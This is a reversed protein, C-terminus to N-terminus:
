KSARVRMRHLSPMFGKRQFLRQADENFDWVSLELDPIGLSKALAFAKDILASGVGRQRAEPAVAIQELELFTRPRAFAHGAREQVRVLAYGLPTDGDVALLFTVAPDGLANRVFEAVAAEDFPRFHGPERNAHLDQVVRNLDVIDSLHRDSARLIHM